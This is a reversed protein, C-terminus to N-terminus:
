GGFNKQKYVFSGNQVVALRTKQDPALLLFDAQKGVELSGVRHELGMSCAPNLTAAPIAEELSIGCFSAFNLMGDFLDLMSGAIAGDETLAKGNKVYARSGAISYIGDPCGAAEMSDTILNIKDPAKVRYALRVAGPHLHFGDCILEVYADSLLGAGVTGPERHHLPTMANYLHTFCSVGDRVAQMAADYDADTHGLSVTAGMACAAKVFETGGELEAAVTIRVPLPGAATMLARLETQDPLHLLEISHAGRHLPSLYRGEVHVGAFGCQRVRHVAQLMQEWPATAITPIVTTTGVKAYSERMRQMEEPSAKCFDFGGRGHTHTDVLGPLLFAGEADWADAEESFGTIVGNESTLGGRKFRHSDSHYVNANRIKM